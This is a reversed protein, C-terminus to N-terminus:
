PCLSDECGVFGVELMREDANRNNLEERLEHLRSSRSFRLPAKDYVDASNHFILRPWSDQWSESLTERLFEMMGCAFPGRKQKSTTVETEVRMRFQKKGQEGQVLEEQRTLPKEEWVVRDRICHTTCYSASEFWPLICQVLVSAENMFDMVQLNEPFRARMAEHREVTKCLAWELREKDIGGYRCIQWTGMPKHHPPVFWLARRIPRTEPVGDKWRAGYKWRENFTPTNAIAACCSNKESARHDEPGQSSSTGCRSDSCCSTLGDEWIKEM